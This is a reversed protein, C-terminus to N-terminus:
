HTRGEWVEPKYVPKQFNVLPNNMKVQHAQQHKKKLNFAQQLSLMQKSDYAEMEMLQKSSLMITMPQTQKHGTQAHEISPGTASQSGQKIM